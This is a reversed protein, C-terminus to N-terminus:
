RPLERTWGARFSLKHRSIRIMELRPLKSQTVPYLPTCGTAHVLMAAALMLRIAKGM